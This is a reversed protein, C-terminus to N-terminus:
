HNSIPYYLPEQFLQNLQKEKSNLNIKKMEKVILNANIDPLKPESYIFKQGWLIDLKFENPYFEPHKKMLNILKESLLKNDLPLILMLQELPNYPQNKTFKFATNIDKIKELTRLIDSPLPSAGYPYYWTWSPVEDLYYKLTFFLSKLYQFCIQNIAKRDNYEVGFFEKYYQGKWLKNPKLTYDIKTFENKTQQYLPHNKKFYYTHEFVNWDREWPKLLALEKISDKNKSPISNAFTAQKERLWRGEQKALMLFYETLFPQNVNLDPDILYGHKPFLAQYIGKLVKFTHQDKMRLFYIHQVFDNGGLFTFFIYDRKLRNLNINGALMPFNKKFGEDLANVLVYMYKEGQYHKQVVRSTDNPKTLLYVTHQPFRNVLVLLDGDNSYICIRSKFLQDLFKLFKHEGEGPVSADSLIYEINKPYNGSVIAHNIADSVKKMFSTGPSINTTDWPEKFSVGYKEQIGAVISREYLRKYRRDRQQMMKGRPPPGDFAIYAMKSPNVLTILTKTNEVVLKIIQKEIRDTNWNSLNQSNKFREYSTYIIQNFDIFFYDIEQNKVKSHSNPFKDLIIKFLKPVGM